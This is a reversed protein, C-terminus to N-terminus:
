IEPQMISCHKVQVWQKSNTANRCMLPGGGDGVCTDARDKGGGACMFSEHLRFTDNLATYKRLNAQCRTNNVLPLEVKALVVSYKGGDTSYLFM